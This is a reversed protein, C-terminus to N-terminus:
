CTFTVSGTMVGDADFSRESFSVQDQHDMTVVTSARTGYSGTQIFLSSLARELDMGVGTDPLERDPFRRDDRLLAFLAEVDSGRQEVWQSLVQKGHTLKPWPCDLAGNSIGYIGAELRRAAAEMSSLFWLEKGDGILLNYPDYQHRRSFVTNLYEGPGADTRLYDSVLLGRSISEPRKQSPERINTIAAFRRGRTVGLWTGGYVMDRGGLIDPGDEWWHAARSPRAHFEDRNAAIVLKYRPHQEWAILILCM